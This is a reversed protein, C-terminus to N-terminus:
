VNILGRFETLKTQKMLCLRTEYYIGAEIIMKKEGSAKRLLLLAEEPTPVSLGSTDAPNVRVIM